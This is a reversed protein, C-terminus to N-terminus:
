RRRAGNGVRAAVTGEILGAALGVTWANIREQQAAFNLSRTAVPEPANGAQGRANGPLTALLFATLITPVCLVRIAQVLIM